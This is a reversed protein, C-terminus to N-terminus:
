RSGQRCTLLPKPAHNIDRYNVKTFVHLEHTEVNRFLVSMKKVDSDFPFEAVHQWQRDEGESLQVRNWGFRSAFVEIAIETPAGRVKWEGPSEATDEMKELTALNALSAINLYWQLASSNGVQERPSIPQMSNGKEDAGMDKPASPSFAVEGATPNYVENGSEVSYTGCGPIWAKRVVMRGQTITGTKDSCIDTTLTPLYSSVDDHFPLKSTVGGLAELSQLNRVIVHREVMKKTGAAMTVTLVLLLSVPITGVSTTVAYLIVDKRTDFKNAGLVIIACVVAFCFLSVFLQSLKKQLPTGVTLGLFEGVWNKMMRGAQRVHSMASPTEAEEDAMNKGDSSLAGAIAGIETFMGTAFVVGRGRGKTITTSSYVVNLRDGPGTDQDFTMKPSKSIPIAEGTLLAEDAELNVAEILRIDAPVSDGTNLDVIDGPVVDATPINITDGDRYVNCTPFGLTRLSDITKEAQLTQVFGIVINLVIIGGLIGGAIWAQIGFSAALALILVQALL